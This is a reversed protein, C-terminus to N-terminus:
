LSCESITGKVFKSQTLPLSLEEPRLNLFEVYIDNNNPFIPLLECKSIAEKFYSNSYNIDMVGNIPYDFSDVGRLLNAKFFSLNGLM